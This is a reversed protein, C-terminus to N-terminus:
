ANLMALLGPISIDVDDNWCIAAGSPTFEFRECAAHIAEEAARQVMAEFGTVVARPAFEIQRGNTLTVAILGTARDYRAYSARRGAIREVQERKRAKEIEDRV